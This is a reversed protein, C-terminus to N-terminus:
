VVGKFLCKKRSSESLMVDPLDYIYMLWYGEM